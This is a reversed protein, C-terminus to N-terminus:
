VHNPLVVCNLLKTKDIAGSRLFTVEIAGVVCEKVVEEGDRLMVLDDRLEPSVGPGHVVCNRVNDQLPFGRNEKDFDLCEHSKFKAESTRFRVVLHASEEEVEGRIMERLRFENPDAGHTSTKAHIFICCVIVTEIGRTDDTMTSVSGGVGARLLSPAVVYHFVRSLGFKLRKHVFDLFHCRSNALISVSSSIIDAVHHQTTGVISYLGFFQADV